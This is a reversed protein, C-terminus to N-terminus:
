YNVYGSVSIVKSSNNRVAFTYNGRKDVQITTDISGDTVNIYHFIGESDVLGFDVSANFPSYSAKITVTEGSELPFVTDAAARGNADVKINFSGTARTVPLVAVENAIADTFVAGGNISLCGILVTSILLTFFIKRGRM